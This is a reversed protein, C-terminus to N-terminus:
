DLQRRHSMESIRVIHNVSGRRVLFFGKISAFQIGILQKPLLGVGVSLLM